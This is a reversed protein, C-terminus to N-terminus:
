VRAEGPNPTLGCRPDHPTAGSVALAISFGAPAAAGGAAAMLSSSRGSLVGELGRSFRSRKRAMRKAANSKPTTDNTNPMNM